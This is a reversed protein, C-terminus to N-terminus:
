RGSAAAKRFLVALRKAETQDVKGKLWKHLEDWFEDTDLVNEKAKKVPADKMEVDETSSATPVRSAAAEEEGEKPLTPTAGLLMIGFEVKGESDKAVEAVLKSDSV